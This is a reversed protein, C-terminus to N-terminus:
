HNNPRPTFPIDTHEFPEIRAPLAPDDLEIGIMDLAEALAEAAITGLDDSPGARVLRNFVVHATVTAATRISLDFPEGCARDGMACPNIQRQALSAAGARIVSHLDISGNPRIPLRGDAKRGAISRESVGIVKAFQGATASPPLNATM